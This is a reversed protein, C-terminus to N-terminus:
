GHERGLIVKEYRSVATDVSYASARRCLEATPPSRGDLVDVIAQALAPVNGVPVLKGWRGGALIEAPGNPCDTSVVPTGCAMAEVLVNGFGEWKSSLVFVAASRMFVYPNRVFGPMSVDAGLGLERVLTELSARQNGEGLILLRASRQKRVEAFAQILTPFDKVPALRGAGLVVPPEGPQFWPHNLPEDRKRLLDAGVVPNAIVSIRSRPVGLTGALDDAVGKSVAVLADAHPYSHRALAPLWRELQGDAGSAMESLTTHESLVLKSPVRALTRAWVALCNTPTLASLVALPRTRRLYRVMAPLSARIRPGDLNVLRVSDPLEGSLAGTARCVVLDVALGREAFGDALTLMVREAGGGDIGVLFLALRKQVAADVADRLASRGALAM